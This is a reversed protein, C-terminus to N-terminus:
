YGYFAERWIRYNKKCPVIACHYQLHKSIIEEMKKQTMDISFRGAEEEEHLWAFLGSYRITDFSYEGYTGENFFKMVRNLYSNSCPESEPRTPSLMSRLLYDNDCMKYTVNNIDEFPNGLGPSFETLTMCSECINMIHKPINKVIQGNYSIACGKVDVDEKKIYVLDKRRFGLFSLYIGLARYMDFGYKREPFAEEILGDLMSLDRVYKNELNGAINLDDLSINLKLFDKGYFIFYNKLLNYLRQYNAYSSAYMEFVAAMKHQSMDLINTKFQKEYAGIAAFTTAYVRITDAAVGKEIKSILFDAKEEYSYCEKIKDSLEYGKYKM